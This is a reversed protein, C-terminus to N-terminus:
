VLMRFKLKDGSVIDDKMAELETADWTVSVYRGGLWARAGKTLWVVFGGCLDPTDKCVVEQLFICVLIRVRPLFKCPEVMHGKTMSTLVAGPALGICIVGRSGYEAEVFECMKLVALRSLQYASSGLTTLHVGISVTNLVDVTTKYNEATEVMLPLFNHLMFYVGKTTIDFCEVWDSSKGEAIPIWVGSVGANNVLIDLRGEEKKITEVAAIVQKENSIDLIIKHVRISSSIKGIAAAVEDLESGTRACIAISAV